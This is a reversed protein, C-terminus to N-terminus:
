KTSSILSLVFIIFFTSGIVNKLFFGGHQTHRSRMRTDLKNVIRIRRAISLKTWCNGLSRATIVDRLLSSIYDSGGCVSNWSIYCMKIAYSCWFAVSITQTHCTFTAINLFFFPHRQHVWSRWMILLVHLGSRWSARQRELKQEWIFLFFLITFMYTSCAPWVIDVLHETSVTHYLREFVGMQVQYVIIIMLPNLSLCM